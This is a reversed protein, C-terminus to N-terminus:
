ACDTEACVVQCVAIAYDGDHSLSILARTGPVSQAYAEGIRGTLTIYPRGYADSTIQIQAMDVTEVVPARGLLAGSWAKIFAEKGAWRAALHYAEDLGTEVARRRAARREPAAFSNGFSTGPAALQEAFSSIHVIDVGLGLTGVKSEM